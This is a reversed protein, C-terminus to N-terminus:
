AVAGNRHLGDNTAPKATQWWPFPAKSFDLYLTSYFLGYDDAPKEGSFLQFRFDTSQLTKLDTWLAPNQLTGGGLCLHFVFQDGASYGIARLNDSEFHSLMSTTDDTKINCAYGSIPQTDNNLAKVTIRNPPLVIRKAKAASFTAMDILTSISFFPNEPNLRHPESLSRAPGPMGAQKLLMSMGLIMMPDKQTRKEIIPQAQIKRRDEILSLENAAAFKHLYRLSHPQLEAMDAPVFLANKKNITRCTLVTKIKSETADHTHKLAEAVSTVWTDQQRDAKSAEKTEDTVSNSSQVSYV